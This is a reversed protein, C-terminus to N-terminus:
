FGEEKLMEAVEAASISEQESKDYITLLVIETDNTSLLINYTIVRAGGSKGKGKSSIAMRVKRVGQGLDAGQLPNNRLEEGLRLVDSKISKYKKELRKLKRLFVSTVKIKCSM